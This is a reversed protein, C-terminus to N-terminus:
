GTTARRLDVSVSSRDTFVRPRVNSGEEEHIEGSSKRVVVLDIGNGDVIELYATEGIGGHERLSGRLHPMM